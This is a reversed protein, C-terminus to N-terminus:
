RGARGVRSPRSRDPREDRAAARRRRRRRGARPRLVPRPLEGDAPGARRAHRRGDLAPVAPVDLAGTVVDTWRRTAPAGVEAVIPACWCRPTSCRSPRGGRGCSGPGSTSARGAGRRRRAVGPDVAAPRARPPRGTRLMRVAVALFEVAADAYPGGGHRSAGGRTTAAALQSLYPPNGVVVDVRAPWTAPWRTAATCRRRGRRGPRGGRGGPQRADIDVGVLVPGGASSACGAPPPPSSAVTVARRISSSSTPAPDGARRGGRRRRPRRALATDPLCGAAQADAVAIAARARASRLTAPTISAPLRNRVIPRSSQAASRAAVGSVSRSSSRALSRPM